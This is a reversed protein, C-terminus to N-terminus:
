KMTRDLSDDALIARYDLADLARRIRRRAAPTGTKKGAIAPNLVMTAHNLHCLYRMLEAPELFIMRYGQEVLKRHLSRGATDGDFFGDTYKRILETRYLACHSRLYRGDRESEPPRRVWTELEKGRRKLPSQIELKWSGVGAIREEAELRGLLYDLWRDSRIITDTHISLVYPTDVQQLGLDLARAHM